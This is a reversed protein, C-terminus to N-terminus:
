VVVFKILATDITIETAAIQIESLLQGLQRASILRAMAAM